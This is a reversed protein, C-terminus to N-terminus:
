IFREEEIGFEVSKICYFFLVVSLQCTDDRKEPIMKIGMEANRCPRGNHPAIAFVVGDQEFRYKIHCM